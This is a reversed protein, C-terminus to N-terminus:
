ITPGESSGLLNNVSERLRPNLPMKWFSPRITLARELAAQESLRRSLQLFELIGTNPPAQFVSLRIAASQNLAKRVAKNLKKQSTKM